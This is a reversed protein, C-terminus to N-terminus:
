NKAYYENSFNVFCYKLPDIPKNNYLIEYHLHPGTSLGTNGVYGIVDNKKVEQGIIVNFDTLHAYVTKYDNNHNIVIRNGYGINSKVIKEVVGNATSFVESNMPTSIDIGSHFIILKLIPHKRYGFLDTIDNLDSLSIPNGIPFTNIDNWKNNIINDINNYNQLQNFSFMYLDSVDYDFIHNYTETRDMSLRLSKNIIKNENEKLIYLETNIFNKLSDIKLGMDKNKIALDNELNSVGTNSLSIFVIFIIMTQYFFIKKLIRKIEKEYNKQKLKKIDIM